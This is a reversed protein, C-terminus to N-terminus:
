REGAVIRRAGVWRKWWWKGYPDNESLVSVQVGRSASHVFQGDGLYLGVHSVRGRSQSFTLIDGPQLAELDRKVAEGERAQERSVRPLKIGHRAYAHQILGSCDFGDSTTGGLRYSTGLAELATAVVSDALAVPATTGAGPDPAVTALPPRRPSPQDVVAAPPASSPDAVEPDGDPAPSVDALPSPAPSTGRSRRNSRGFLASVRVSLEVGDRSGPDVNRWRAEAALAVAGGLVLQYGGGASWSNWWDDASDSSFGAAIGGIAYLGSRPGRLVILDTGAGWHRRAAPSEDRLHTGYIAITVPGAVGREVGLRYTTWGDAEFLRGMEAQIGQAALHVPPCPPLGGVTAAVIVVACRAIGAIAFLGGARRGAPGGKM